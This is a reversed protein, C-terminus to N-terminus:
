LGFADDPVSFPLRRLGVVSPSGGRGVRSRGFEVREVSKVGKDNSGIISHSVAGSKGNSLRRTFGVIGQEKISSYSKALGVQQMGDSLLHNTLAWVCPHGVKGTFLEGVLEDIPDLVVLENFEALTIALGVDQENVVNLEKGTFLTDLFFKEMGEVCEVFRM